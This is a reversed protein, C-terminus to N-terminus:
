TGHTCRRTRGNRGTTVTSQTAKLAACMEATKSFKATALLQSEDPTRWGSEQKSLMIPVPWTMSQTLIAEYAPWISQIPGFDIKETSLIENLNELFKPYVIVRRVHSLYNPGHTTELAHRWTLVDIIGSLAVEERSNGLGEMPLFTASMQRNDQTWLQGCVPHTGRMRGGVNVCGFLPSSIRMEQLFDVLDANIGAVEEENKLIRQNFAVPNQLCAHMRDRSNPPAQVGNNNTAILAIHGGPIEPNPARIGQAVGSFLLGAHSESVENPFPPHSIVDAGPSIWRDKPVPAEPLPVMDAITQDRRAFRMRLKNAQYRMRFVYDINAGQFYQAIMPTM